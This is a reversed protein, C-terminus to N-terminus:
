KKKKELCYEIKEGVTENVLTYTSDIEVANVVNHAPLRDIWDPEYVVMRQLDAATFDSGSVNAQVMNVMKLNAHSLNVSILQARQLGAGYLDAETFIAEHLSANSIDAWQIKAKHFNTKRLQASALTAGNLDAETFNAENLNTWSLDARSLIANRADVHHLNASWLNASWLDTAILRAGELNANSLDAERLNADSLDISRLDANRLEANSFTAELKIQRWSSTDLQMRTLALLLMGREPSLSKTLTSDGELRVYPNFAYSLAAIRGITEISLKRQPHQISEHHADKLINGMWNVLASNRTTEILETQQATQLQALRIRSRHNEQQQQIFFVIGIAGLILTLPILWNRVSSRNTTIKRTLLFSAMCLTVFGLGAIFGALFSTFKSTAPLFLLALAGTICAGLLFGLLLFTAKKM